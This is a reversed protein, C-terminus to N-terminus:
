NEEWDCFLTAIPQEGARLNNVSEDIVSLVRMRRKSSARAVSVTHTPPLKVLKQILEYVTM